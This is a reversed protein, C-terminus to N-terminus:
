YNTSTFFDLFLELGSFIYILTGIALYPGFPIHQSFKNRKILVALIGCISGVFSGIFITQLSCQPGFFAGTMALLKVDGFGLGEKKRLRFYFESIFWLFGGGALIGYFSTPLGDSLPETFFDTYDNVAALLIGLAIGPFTIVNPIIYFDYDIFTIVILAYIFILTIFSSPNFGFQLYVLVTFFGTLLEVFPYRFSVPARCFACKGRLFLWSLVPINHYWLLQMGCTPCFSRKPYFVTLNEHLAHGNLEKNLTKESEETKHLSPIPSNSNENQEPTEPEVSQESTAYSDAGDSSGTEEGEAEEDFQYRSGRPIRYICVNLFSGVICGFVFLLFIM